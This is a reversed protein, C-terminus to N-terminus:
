HGAGSLSLKSCSSLDVGECSPKSGAVQAGLVMQEGPHSLLCHCALLFFMLLMWKLATVPVRGLAGFLMPSVKPLIRQMFTGTFLDECKCFSSPLKM